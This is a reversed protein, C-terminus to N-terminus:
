RLPKGHTMLEQAAWPRAQSPALLYGAQLRLLNRTGIDHHVEKAITKLADRLRLANDRSDLRFESVCLERGRQDTVSWRFLGIAEPQLMKSLDLSIHNEQTEGRWAVKGTQQDSVMVRFSGGKEAPNLNPWALRLNGGTLPTVMANPWPRLNSACGSGKSIGQVKGGGMGKEPWIFEFAMEVINTLRSNTPPKCKFDSLNVTYRTNEKLKLPECGKSVPWNLEAWGKEGTQLVAGESLLRLCPIEEGGKRVIKRGPESLLYVQNGGLLVVHKAGETEAWANPLHALVSLLLCILPCWMGRLWVYM